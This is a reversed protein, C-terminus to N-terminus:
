LPVLWGQCRCWIDQNALGAAGTIHLGLIEGGNLAPAHNDSTSFICPIIASGPTAPGFDLISGVTFATGRILAIWAAASSFPSAPTFGAAEVNVRVASFNYGQPVQFIKLDLNGNNDTQGTVNEIVKRRKGAIIAEHLLEGQVDLARNTRMVLDYLAPGVSESGPPPPTLVKPTVQGEEDRYQSHERQYLNPVPSNGGLPDPFKNM